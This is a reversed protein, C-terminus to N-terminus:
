FWGRGKPLPALGLFYHYWDAGWGQFPVVVGTIAARLAWYAAYGEVENCEWQGRARGECEHIADDRSQGLLRILFVDCPNGGFHALLPAPLTAPDVLLVPSPSANAVM